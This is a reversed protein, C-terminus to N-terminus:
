EGIVRLAMKLQDSLSLGKDIKSLVGTIESKSYGLSELAKHLESKSDMDEFVSQTVKGKLELVVKAANKKGIGSISTFFNVNASEIAQKIEGVTGADMVSLALKPGVGSVKLLSEFFAQDESELFGYLAEDDERVHHYLYMAAEQQGTLKVITNSSVGVWYGLGQNEILIKKRAIQLIRGRIYGFM